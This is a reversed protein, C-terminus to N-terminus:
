DASLRQRIHFWAANSKKFSIRSSAEPIIQRFLGALESLEAPAKLSPDIVSEAFKEIKARTWKIPKAPLDEEILASPKVGLAHAIRLLTAVTLDRKGKEINSLNAQALGAKAALEAQAIRQLQRYEYIRLGPNLM